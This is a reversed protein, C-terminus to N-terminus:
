VYKHQLATNSQERAAADAARAEERSTSDGEMMSDSNLGSALGSLQCHRLQSAVNELSATVKENDRQFADTLRTIEQKKEESLSSELTKMHKLISASQLHEIASSVSTGLSAKKFSKSYNNLSDTLKTVKIIDKGSRTNSDWSTSAKRLVDVAENLQKEAMEPNLKRHAFFAVNTLVFASAIPRKKLTDFIYQFFRKVVGPPPPPPPHPSGHHHEHPGNHKGSHFNEKKHHTHEHHPHERQHQHHPPPHPPYYAHQAAPYGYPLQMYSPPYSSMDNYLHHPVDPKPTPQHVKKAKPGTVGRQWPKVRGIGKKLM